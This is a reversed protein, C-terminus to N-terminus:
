TCGIHLTTCCWCNSVIKGWRNPTTCAYAAYADDLGIVNDLTVNTNYNLMSYQNYVFPVQFLNHTTFILQPHQVMVSHAQCIFEARQVTDVGPNDQESLAIMSQPGNPDRGRQQLHDAQYKILNPLDIFHMYTPWVPQLAPGYPHTVVAWDYSTGVQEWIGDLITRTGLHTPVWGPPNWVADNSIYMIVGNKIVRQLARYAVTMLDVVKRVWLDTEAQTINKSRVPVIPSYDFWSASAVENWIIWHNIKGNSSAGGYMMAMMTIFDEWDNMADDRPVCPMKGIPADVGMCTPYQYQPPTTWLVAANHTNHQTTSLILNRWHSLVSSSWCHYKHFGYTDLQTKNEPIMTYGSPCTLPSPSSTLNSEVGSWFLNWIKVGPVLDREQNLIREQLQQPSINEMTYQDNLGQKNRPPTYGEFLGPTQCTVLSSVCLVLFLLAYKMKENVM